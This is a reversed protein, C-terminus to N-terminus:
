VLINRDLEQLKLFVVVAYDAGPSRKGLPISTYRIETGDILYEFFFFFIQKPCSAASM